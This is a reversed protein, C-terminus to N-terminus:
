QKAKQEKNAVIRQKLEMKSGKTDLHMLQLQEVMEEKTMKTLLRDLLEEKTGSAQIGARRLNEQVDFNCLHANLFM